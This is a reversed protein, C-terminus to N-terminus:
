YSIRKLDSPQETSKCKISEVGGVESMAVNMPVVDKKM